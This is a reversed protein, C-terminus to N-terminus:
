EGKFKKIYITLIRRIAESHSVKFGLKLEMWEAVKGVDEWLSPEMKMIRSKHHKLNEGTLNRERNNAM